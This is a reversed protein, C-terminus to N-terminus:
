RLEPALRIKTIQDAEGSQIGRPGVQWRSNAGLLMRGLEHAFVHGLLQVFSLEREVAFSKIPDYFIWADCAFAQVGDETAYGFVNERQRFRESRSFPPVNMTLNMPGSLNTCGADGSGVAATSVCLGFRRYGPRM